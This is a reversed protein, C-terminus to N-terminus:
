HSLSEYVNLITKACEDWRFLKAREIAKQSEKERWQSNTLLHHLAQTISLIDDPNILLGVEGSIEPLSSRNSVIPVIGCAMGELAPLGFGEYFSTTICTIAGNYVFPLQEDTINNKWILHKDLKLTDIEQKLEKFLWGEKGVLVIPPADKYIKLLAQYARLLGILNKRPEWTGVHLIYGFPLGLGELMPHIYDRDLVTFREDVGLRHVTIKESPVNLLSMMDQKTSESDSFIHTAQQTAIKIQDNYYRKSDSTIYQPYHMFTLDHVTIIYKKAGWRPPIFDPSHFIDLRHPLLEASLALRELRHHSPTWLTAHKFRTVLSESTKRSHFITYRNHTDLTELAQVFRRIYTSIGGVRYYTLRADIGIKV